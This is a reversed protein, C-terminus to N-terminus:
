GDLSWVFWNEHPGPLLGHAVDDVCHSAILLTAPAQSGDIIAVPKIVAPQGGLRAVNADNTLAIDDEVEDFGPFRQFPYAGSTIPFDVSISLRGNGRADTWFGNVVDDSGPHPLTIALQDRLHDSAILPTVPIGTLPSGGYPNGQSDVGALRLWVTYLTDPKASQVIFTLSSSGARERLQFRANAQPWTEVDTADAPNCEVAVSQGTPSPTEPDWREFEQWAGGGSAGVPSVALTFAGVAVVLVARRWLAQRKKAM